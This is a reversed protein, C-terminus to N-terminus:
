ITEQIVSLVRQFHGEYACCYSKVIFTALDESARRAFAGREMDIGKHRRVGDAKIDGLRLDEKGVRETM